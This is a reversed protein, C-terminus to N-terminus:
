AHTDGGWTARVIKFNLLMTPIMVALGRWILSTIQGHQLPFALVLVSLAIAFVAFGPAAGRLHFAIYDGADVELTRLVKPLIIAWGFLASCALTAAAVGVTKFAFLMAISLGINTILQAVVIKVLPKEHGTMIMISSACTSSIQTNYVAFLLCQGVLWIENTVEDLGTLVAIVPRMYVAGLVYIPTVILFNFRSTRLLLDRLGARDGRARLHAAAPSIAEDLHTAFLRLIEAVKAAAQYHAVSTMGLFAGVVIRDIQMLLRNSMHILYASISFSLQERIAGPHFHKFPNLSLGKILRFAFLASLTSPILSSLGAILVILSFATGAKLCITIVTFNTVSIGIRIWNALDLRQLGQLMENFLGLPFILALCLAFYVYAREFEGSYEPPASFLYFFLPRLLLLAIFLAGAMVTFGWFATTLLRNMGDVDDEAVKEAVAKQVSMGIGFDLVFGMGFLSWLLAWFGFEASSWTSFLQRFMLLGLGLSVVTSAYSSLSNKLFRQKWSIEAM